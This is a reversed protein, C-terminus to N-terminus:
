IWATKLWEASRQIDGLQDPSDFHEISLINNYGIAKLGAILERMHICGAGVSIPYMARGRLTLMAMGGRSADFTRDKCHVHQIRRKLTTFAVLEDEENFLFNGTDFALELEPVDDLLRSLQRITSCPSRENDFDEVMATIGRAKGMECVRNLSKAIQRLAVDESEDTHLLNPIMLCKESQLTQVQNLCQEIQRDTVGHALDLHAYVDIVKMGAAQVSTIMTQADALSDFAECEIGEIGFGKVKKLVQELPLGTQQSACEIHNWFVSLEM